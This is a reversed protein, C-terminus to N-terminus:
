GQVRRLGDQVVNLIRDREGAAVQMQRNPDTSTASWGWGLRFVPVSGGMVAQIAFEGWGRGHEREDPLFAGGRFDAHAFEQIDTRKTFMGRERIPM